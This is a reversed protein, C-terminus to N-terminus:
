TQVTQRWSTRGRSARGTSTPRPTAWSALRRRSSRRRSSGGRSRSSEPTETLSTAAVILAAHRQAAEWEFGVETRRVIRNLIRFEDGPARLRGKPKGEFEALLSAEFEDLSVRSAVSFFDGSHVVVSM